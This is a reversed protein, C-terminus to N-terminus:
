LYHTLMRLRKRLLLMNNKYELRNRLRISFLQPRFFSCCVFKWSNISMYRKRLRNLRCMHKKFKKNRALMLHHRFFKFFTVTRLSRSCVYHKRYAIRVRTYINTYFFFFFTYYLNSLFFFDHKTFHYRRSRVFRNYFLSHIVSLFYSFYYKSSLLGCLRDFCFFFLDTEIFVLNDFFRRILYNSTPMKLSYFLGILYDTIRYDLWLIHYYSNSDM